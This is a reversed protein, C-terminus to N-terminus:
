QVWASIQASTGSGNGGGRAGGGRGGGLGGGGIFYHIRGEGVDDQFQALTPSPDTGNFGGIAMVPQGSALQYGGAQNASIAAAAWTYRGSDAQLAATLAPNSSSSGLIGGVGGGGVGGGGGRGGAGGGGPGGRGGPGFGGSGAPGASPIAGSHAQAATSLAYAAPGALTAVLALSAVVTAASPAGGVWRLVAPWAAIIGALALGGVLVVHRLMPHWAPTRDLLQASWWATAGVAAALFLRANDDSRRRWLATAGIGVIAGIAPALAVTYYPHIIGKGLSIAAGTVLLWGGWLLMAARTPATRATRRTLWLVAVLLVLAGPLLWSIQGGFETNFLRGLGTAGWRGTGGPGGGGVSGSENGNLRGFGNYGFILNFLSNNQSGGIYPRSSARTLSVLAIWWGAAAVMALAGIALQGIRRGLKPPGAILYALGFAPLVLLTQLMKVLFGFGVLGFALAVWKTRGDELARTMSYAGGILTLVLLADPNNFRFMLAAVPTLALIAGALLGAAPGFWRKLAAYLVGVAAVGELAQPVLISWANVGFVRASLEMPWLFAPAKDVTIFNSADSSGFFFAKWSTAGAQVAASYYANAWGSAGLRWLYLLATAALLGFLAPRAWAPDDPRGRVCRTVLGRAGRPGPAGSASAPLAAPEASPAVPPSTPLPPPQLTTPM